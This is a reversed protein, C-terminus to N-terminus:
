LISFTQQHNNTTVIRVFRKVTAYRENNQIRCWDEVTLRCNTFYIIVEGFNKHLLLMECVGRVVQFHSDSNFEPYKTTPYGTVLYNKAPILVDCDWNHKSGHHPIHFLYVSEIGKAALVKLITSYQQDGAFVLKKGRWNIINIISRDNTNNGPPLYSTVTLDNYHYAITKSIDQVTAINFSDQKRADTFLLHPTRKAKEIFKDVAASHDSDAHTVILYSHNSKSFNFQKPINTFYKSYGTDIGLTLNKYRVVVCDGKGQFPLCIAPAIDFTTDDDEDEEDEDYDEDDEDSIYYEILKVSVEPFDCDELLTGGSVYSYITLSSDEPEVESNCSDCCGGGVDYEFAMDYGMEREGEEYYDQLYAVLGISKRCRPCISSVTIEEIDKFNTEYIEGCSDSEYDEYYDYDQSRNSNDSYSDYDGCDTDEVSSSFTIQHM